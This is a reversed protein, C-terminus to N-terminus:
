EALLAEIQATAEEVSDYNPKMVYLSYGPMAFCTTSSSGTGTVAIMDIDWPSMDSIQMQILSQIEESTMNTVFCGSISSFIVKVVRASHTSVSFPKFTLKNIIGTLVRQQNRVRENDGGSFSYRERSFSLAERGDLEIEGAAFGKFARPNDVTIGGLADVITILSTFNVKVYYDIEIGFLDSLTNM